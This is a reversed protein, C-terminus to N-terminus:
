TSGLSRILGALVRECEDLERKVGLYESEEYYKFDLAFLLQTDIEYLEGRAQKLFYVYDQTNGRGYGQAIHSAVSYSMRRLSAMLGFREAEPLKGALRYLSKGLSYARQWAILDRYSKIPETL